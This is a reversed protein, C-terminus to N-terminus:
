SGVITDLSFTDAAWLLDLFLTFRGIPGVCVNDHRRLSKIALFYLDCSYHM